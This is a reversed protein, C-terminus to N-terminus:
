FLGFGGTFASEEYRNFREMQFGNQLEVALKTLDALQMQEHRTKNPTRELREIEAWVSDLQGETRCTEIEKWFMSM